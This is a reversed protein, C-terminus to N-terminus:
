SKGQISGDGDLLYWKAWAKNSSAKQGKFDPARVLELTKWFPGAVLNYKGKCCIHVKKKKKLEVLKKSGVWRGGVEHM